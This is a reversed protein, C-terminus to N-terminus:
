INVCAVVTGTTCVQITRNSWNPTISVVGSWLENGLLGVVRGNGILAIGNNTLTTRITGSIEAQAGLWTISRVYNSTGTFNFGSGSISGTVRANLRDNLRINFASTVGSTTSATLTSNTVPFNVGYFTLASAMSGTVRM